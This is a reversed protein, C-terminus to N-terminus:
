VKQAAQVLMHPKTVAVQTVVVTIVAKSLTTIAARSSAAAKSSAGTSVVRSVATTVLM